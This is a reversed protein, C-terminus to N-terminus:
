RAPLGAGVTVTGRRVFWARLGHALRTSHAIQAAENLHYASDYFAHRPYQSRNRLVLFGHGHEAYFRELASVLASPVPADDFVTPLGGVVRVGNGRAWDLFGAIVTLAAAEKGFVDDFTPPRWSWDERLLRYAAGRAATHGTEDGQASLTDVGFRRRVGAADLAMEGVGQILYPLDFFFLARVFREAGRRWLAAKDHFFSYPADMGTMMRRRGVAYQEYELPMYVVDGPRLVPKYADLLYDLAIDANVGGNVCPRAILAEIAACSHSFRANSGALILLKPRDLGAAYARKHAIMAGAVDVTLPKHVLFGFAAGYLLLSALCCGCFALLARM